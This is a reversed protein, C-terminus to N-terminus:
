EDELIATEISKLQVKGTGELMIGIFGKEM